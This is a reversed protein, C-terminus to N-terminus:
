KEDEDLEEITLTESSKGQTCLTAVESRSSHNEKNLTASEERRRRRRSLEGEGRDKDWLLCADSDSANSLKKNFLLNGFEQFFLVAEGSDVGKAQFESVKGSHQDPGFKDCLDKLITPYVYSLAMRGLCKSPKNGNKLLSNWLVRTVEKELLSPDDQLSAEDSTEELPCKSNIAKLLERACLLAAQGSNKCKM